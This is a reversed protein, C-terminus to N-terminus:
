SMAEHLVVEAFIWNRSELDLEGVQDHLANGSPRLHVRGDEQASILGAHGIEAIAVRATKM